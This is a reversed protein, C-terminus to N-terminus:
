PKNQTPVIGILLNAPNTRDGGPLCLAGIGPVIEPHRIIASYPTACLSFKLYSLNNDEAARLAVAASSQAASVMQLQSACGSLSLAFLAALLIKTKM